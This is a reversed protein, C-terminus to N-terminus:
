GDIGDSEALIPVPNRQPTCGQSLQQHPLPATLAIDQLLLPVIVIYRGGGEGRVAGVKCSSGIIGLYPGRWVDHRMSAHGYVFNNTAMLEDLLHGQVTLFDNCPAHCCPLTARCCMLNMPM